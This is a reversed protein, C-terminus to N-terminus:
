HPAPLPAPGPEGGQVWNRTGEESAPVAVDSTRIRPHALVGLPAWGFGGCARLTCSVGPVPQESGYKEESLVGHGFTRMEACMSTPESAAEDTIMVAKPPPQGPLPQVSTWPVPSRQVEPSIEIVPVPTTGNWSLQSSVLPVTLPCVHLFVPLLVQLPVNAGLGM